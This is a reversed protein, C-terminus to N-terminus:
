SALENWRRTTPSRDLNSKGLDLRMTIAQRM